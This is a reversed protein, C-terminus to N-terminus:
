YPPYSHLNDYSNQSTNDVVTTRTAPNRHM